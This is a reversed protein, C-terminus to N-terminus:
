VEEKTYSLREAREAYTLGDFCINETLVKEIMEGWDGNFLVNKMTAIAAVGHVIAWMAILSQLYKEKTLNLKDMITIAVKKFVEFPPYSETEVFSSTLNIHFGSQGVLFQFYNPNECFFIVYAKGLRTILGPDKPYEQITHNLADVFKDTVYDKMAELLADKDKFHSYPAAHSVGCKAAVKRLSCGSVGEENVIEIGTEILTTRLNGHHYPKGEM